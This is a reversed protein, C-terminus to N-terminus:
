HNKAGKRQSYEAGCTKTAQNSGNRATYYKIMNYNASSPLKRSQVAKTTGASLMCIGNVPNQLTQSNSEKGNLV